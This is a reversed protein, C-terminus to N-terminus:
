SWCCSEVVSVFESNRVSVLVICLSFSPQLIRSCVIVVIKKPKEHVTPFCFRVLTPLVQRYVQRQIGSSTFPVARDESLNQYSEIQHFSSM